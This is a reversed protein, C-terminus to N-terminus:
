QQQGVDCRQLNPTFKAGSMYAFYQALSWGDLIEKGVRHNWGLKKAVKPLDYTYNFKFVHNRSYQQMFGTYEKWRYSYLGANERQTYTKSLTYSAQLHLGHGYRKVLTTQLAHHRANAVNAPLKLASLGRYPRMLEDSVTNSGPLAPGPNTSSITGRFNYGVNGPEVFEPRYATGPLPANIDFTITQHRQMNGLYGVDLGLRGPLQRQISLSYDYITPRKTNTSDYVGFSRASIRQVSNAAGAALTAISSLGASTSQAFANTFNVNSEAAANRNYTWGFGGRVVTKQDKFPSWAFGGRPAAMLFPPNPIGSVGIGHTNLPVIGNMPDGSGPVLSYLLLSANAAPVPNNPNAPDIVQSPNAPNKVYFRPARNPDWLSPVFAGDLTDTPDLNHESPIHYFRVGYDLTLNRRVRYTDQGFFHFDSYIANTRGARSTQSFNNLAGTAMNSPAYNTDFVNSRNVTFDFQGKDNTNNNEQKRYRIYNAGFKFMHKHEMWSLKSSFQTHNLKAEIPFRNFNFNAYTSTLVAPLVDTTTPYILPLKSLGRNAKLIDKPYVADELRSYLDDFGWSGSTESVFKAGITRTVNGAFARDPRPQKVLVLPNTGTAIYTLLGQIAGTDETYRGFVRTKDNVVWDIKGTNSVRPAKSQYQWAYNNNFDALNNPLPYLDMIALGLPDVMSAPMIRNPVPTTTGPLYITPRNGANDVTQSFDGKRELATPVRTLKLSGPVSQKFNEFNYFFFLRNKKVPGGINGGFYNYKYPARPTGIYNNAWTNANLAENRLYDFLVGSYKNTGSKTVINVVAGGREGYEAQYNNTLVAVEQISEISPAVTTKADNGHDIISGGDLNVATQTGPKGNIQFDGLGEPTYDRGNLGETTTPISGAIARLMINWNRGPLPQDTIEKDTLVGSREPSETLVPMETTVTISTLPGEGVELALEGLAVQQFSEIALVPITKSKFGRASISLSYRGVVLSPISFLGQENSKTNRVGGTSLETIKIEAGPITAGSKDTVSGLVSGLGGQGTAPFPQLLSILALGIALLRIRGFHSSMIM